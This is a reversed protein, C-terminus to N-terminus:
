VLLEFHSEHLRSDQKEAIIIIIIIIKKTNKKRKKVTTAGIMHILERLM